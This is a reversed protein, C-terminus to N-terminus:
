FGGDYQAPFGGGCASKSYRFKSIQEATRDTFVGLSIKQKEM